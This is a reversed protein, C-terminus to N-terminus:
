NDNVKEEEIPSDPENLFDKLVTGFDKKVTIEHKETVQGQLKAYLELAKLVDSDKMNSGKRSELNEAWKRIFKCLLKGSEMGEKKLQYDVAAWTILLQRHGDSNHNIQVPPSIGYQQEIEKQTAGDDISKQITLRKPNRCIQCVPLTPMGLKTDM